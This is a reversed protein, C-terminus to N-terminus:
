QRIPSNKDHAFREPLQAVHQRQVLVAIVPTRGLGQVQGLRRQRDADAADLIFVAHRQENAILRAHPRGLVALDDHPQRAFGARREGFAPALDFQQAIEIGALHDDAGVWPHGVDDHRRRQRVQQALMRLQAEPQAALAPVLQLAFQQRATDVNIHARREIREIRANAGGGVFQRRRHDQAAAIVRQGPQRLDADLIHQRIRQQHRLQRAPVQRPQGFVVATAHLGFTQM